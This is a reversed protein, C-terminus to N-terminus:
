QNNNTNIYKTILKHNIIIFMQLTLLEFEAIRDVGGEESVSYNFGLM